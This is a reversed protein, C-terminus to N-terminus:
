FKPGCKPPLSMKIIILGGLFSYIFNPIIFIIFPHINNFYSLFFTLPFFLFIRMWELIKITNSTAGWGASIIMLLWLAVAISHIVMISLFIKVFKRAFTQTM